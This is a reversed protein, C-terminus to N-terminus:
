ALISSLLVVGALVVSSVALSGGGGQNRAISKPLAPIKPFGDGTLPPLDRAHLAKMRAIDFRPSDNKGVARALPDPGYTAAFKYNHLRSEPLPPSGSPLGVGTSPPVVAAARTKMVDVNAFRGLPDPGHTDAHKVPVSSQALLTSASDALDSGALNTGAFDSGAFDTGALDSGALDSGALDSGALNTGALDSGALNTGAFDTGALDSGALDSGALDTSLTSGEDSGADSDPDALEYGFYKRQRVKKMQKTDDAELAPVRTDASVIVYGGFNRSRPPATEGTEPDALVYGAFARRAPVPVLEYGSYDRRRPAKAALEGALEGALEDTAADAIEGALEYGRYRRRSARAARAAEDSSRIPEGTAADALVFTTDDARPALSVGVPPGALAEVVEWSEGRGQVVFPGDRFEQHLPVADEVPVEDVLRALFAPRGSETRFEALATWMDWPVNVFAALRRQLRDRRDMYDVPKAGTRLAAIRRLLADQTNGLAAVDVYADDKGSTAAAVLASECDAIADELPGVESDDVARGYDSM